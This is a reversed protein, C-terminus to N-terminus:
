PLKLVHILNTLWWFDLFGKESVNISRSTLKTQKDWTITLIRKTAQKLLYGYKSACFWFFCYIVFHEVIEEVHARKKWGSLNVWVLKKEQPSKLNSFIDYTIWKCLKPLVEWIYWWWKPVKWATQMAFDCETSKINKTTCDFRFRYFCTFM